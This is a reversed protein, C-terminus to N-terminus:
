ISEVFIKVGEIRLVRVQQGMPIVVGHESRATWVQGSISALGTGSLNDIDETVVAVTGIIRDANTPQTGTKLMRQAFPRVLVLSLISVVLFVAIQVWLPAHLASVILGGLAGVAFWISTLGVSVAEGACLILFAILWFVSPGM